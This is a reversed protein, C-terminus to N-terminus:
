TTLKRSNIKCMKIQVWVRLYQSFIDRVKDKIFLNFCYEAM